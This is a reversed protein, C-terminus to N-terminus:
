DHSLNKYEYNVTEANDQLVVAGNKLHFRRAMETKPSLTVFRYVEPHRQRIAQVAERLLRQGAGARYSWITYFVATTTEVSEGLEAVTTPVRDLLNVCVMSQPTNPEEVLAVVFRNRAVRFERSIEPRVPDDKIYELLPNHLDTIISLMNAGPTIHTNLGKAL